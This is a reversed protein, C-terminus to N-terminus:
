RSRWASCGSQQENVRKNSELKSEKIGKWGGVFEGEKMSAESERDDVDVVSCDTNGM